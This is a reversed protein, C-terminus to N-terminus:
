TSKGAVSLQATPRVMQPAPHRSVNLWGCFQPKQSLTQGSLWAQTPPWQVAVQELSRVNHPSRHTLRLVVALCQPAQPVDQGLPWAHEFPTQVVAQGPLVRTAGTNVLSPGLVAQTFTTFSELLQPATPTRHASPMAQALPCHAMEQM